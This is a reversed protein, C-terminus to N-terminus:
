KDPEFHFNGEYELSGGPGYWIGQGRLNALEDTGNLIVWKGTWDEGLVARGVVSMTFKGSRGDVEGTFTLTGNFSANGNSHIVVTGVETEVGEFTGTFVGSDNTTMFTNGGKIETESDTIEYTWYGSAKNPPGAYVPNTSLILFVAMLLFLIKKM